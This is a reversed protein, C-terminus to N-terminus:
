RTPEMTKNPLRQSLWGGVAGFFFAVPVAVFLDRASMWYAEIWPYIFSGMAFALLMAGGSTIGGVLIRKANAVHAAVGGAACLLVALSSILLWRRILTEFNDCAVMGFPNEGPGALQVPKISFDFNLICSNNLAMYSLLGIVGITLGAGIGQM